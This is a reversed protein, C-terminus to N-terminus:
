PTQAQQSLNETGAPHQKAYPADTRERRTLEDEAEALLREADPRNAFEDHLEALPQLELDRRRRFWSM